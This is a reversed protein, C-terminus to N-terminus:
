QQWPTEKWMDQLNKYQSQALRTFAARDRYFLLQKGKEAAEKFAPDAHAKAIADGLKALVADPTGKPAGIGRLAGWQADFGQEKFTPVTPAKEWREDALLGLVRVQKEEHLPISGSVSTIAANMHGGLVSAQGAGSGDQPIYNFKVKAAQQLTLVGLHPASGIGSGAVTLSGPSAKLRAILDKADKIESDHRVYITYPENTLTGIYEFSDVSYKLTNSGFLITYLGPLSLLGLTYGDPKAAAVDSNALAGGAGPKNVVAIKANNGLYKELYPQVMRTTVDIASGATFGVMITITREPYEAKAAPASIVTAAAMAAAVAMFSYPKRATM